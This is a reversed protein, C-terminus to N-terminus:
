ANLGSRRMIDMRDGVDSIQHRENDRVEKWAEFETVLDPNRNFAARIEWALDCCFDELRYM